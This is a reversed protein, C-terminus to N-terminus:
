AVAHVAEVVGDVTRDLGWNEIIRSSTRGWSAALGPDAALPALARALEDARGPRFVAGNEQPRVLDLRAGVRTSVVVPLSFNMAENVALGWPELRSPLVLVNAASYADGIRSQNVFGLHTLEVKLQSAKQHLDSRLAGDGAVLLHVPYSKRLEGCAEVLTLPDKWAALKGVYLVVFKEDDIGFCRRSAARDSPQRRFFENDVAYPALFRREEPYGFADYYLDNATGIPLVAQTRHILWKGTTRSFLGPSGLISSEARYLCPLGKLRSGLMGGIASLNYLGSFLVADPRTRRLASELSPNLYSAFRGPPAQPRWNRVFTSSYGDLLDVDWAFRVNFDPDVQSEVGHGSLFIM